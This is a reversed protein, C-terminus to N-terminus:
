IWGAERARLHAEFRNHAGLKSMASSLYNRTTGPALFVEEAISEISGGKGAAEIVETERETLPSDAATITMAALEPNIYRKGSYVSRVTDAFEKATATKPLFGQVGSALARKLQYPRSHSTVIVLATQPSLKNINKALEVGDIGGLQLDTVLVDPLPAHMAQTKKWWSLVDEASSFTHIVDLDEELSLLTALSSAILQEDDVIVLTIM